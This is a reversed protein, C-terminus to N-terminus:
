GTGHEKENNPAAERMTARMQGSMEALAMGIRIADDAELSFGDDMLFRAALMLDDCINM